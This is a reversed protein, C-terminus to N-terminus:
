TRAAPIGLEEILHSLAVQGRFKGCSESSSPQFSMLSVLAEQYCDLGEFILLSSGRNHLLDVEQGVFFFHSPFSFEQEQDQHFERANM